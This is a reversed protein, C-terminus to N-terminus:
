PSAPAASPAAPGGGGDLHLYLHLFLLQVVVGPSLIVPDKRLFQGAICVQLYPHSERISITDVCEVKYSM